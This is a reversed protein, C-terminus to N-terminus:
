NSKGFDAVGIRVITRHNDIEEPPAQPKRNRTRVNASSASGAEEAWIGYVRGNFAAIGTYDGIFDDRSEFAKRTWAYNQFILGGDTSRALVVITSKNKPDDRRDYFVVYAAGTEPDVSLWQFFQDSGNHLPDSNVRVASSWSAGSDESTSVFIDVDGNRYDSWSVFLRNAKPDLSIQPFGNARDVGSIKFYLPAVDLVEKSPAFTKGGDKSSTFAINDGDAWVAYLTGDPAIAGSFGEVAGNDDRPLGERSSIEIPASWTNGDDTSRSFLMVSKTLTFQTWGVYLNGAYPSKSNTDAAIYPKDEFPIGPETPHSIVTSPEPNWTKGGNDSRRVFIGNRTANHAWYNETGLKDFAIYCLFAHGKNDFAVSVDGSVAYDKPATTSALTWHEGADSSFAATAAVQYAAVIQRPNNPNVAISPENFFGPHPTLDILRSVPASPLTQATSRSALTGFLILVGLWLISTCALASRFSSARARICTQM